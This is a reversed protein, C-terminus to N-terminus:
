CGRKAQGLISINIKISAIFPYNVDSIFAILIYDRLTPKLWLLPKEFFVHKNRLNKAQLLKFVYWEEIYLGTRTRLGCLPLMKREIEKSTGFKQIKMSNKIYRWRLAFKAGFILKEMSYFKKLANFWLVSNTM